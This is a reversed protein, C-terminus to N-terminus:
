KWINSYESGETKPPLLRRMKLVVSQKEIKQFKMMDPELTNTGAIAAESIWYRDGLYKALVKM